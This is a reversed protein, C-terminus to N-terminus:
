VFLPELREEPNAQSITQEGPCFPLPDAFCIAVRRLMSNVVDVRHVNGSRVVDVMDFSGDDGHQPVSFRTMMQQGPYPSCDSAYCTFAAGRSSVDAM